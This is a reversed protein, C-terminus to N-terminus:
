IVGVNRIRNITRGKRFGDPIPINEAIHRSEIGNTIWKYHKGKLSESLKKKTELSHHKGYLSESIKRKTEESHRRGKSAESMKRKTEESMNKKAESLKQKTEDSLKKGIKNHIKSHESHTLYVLNSLSNNMKNEDIHHIDYDKKYGLNTHVQWQHVAHGKFYARGDKHICTEQIEGKSNTIIATVPDIFFDPFITDKYKIMKSYRGKGKNFNFHPLLLYDEKRSAIGLWM